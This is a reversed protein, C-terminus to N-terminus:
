LLAILDLIFNGAILASVAGVAMLVLFPIQPTVWVRTVGRAELEQAIRLREKRDDESTEAERESSEVGVSPDKLWVFHDPLEAVPMTYGSFGRPFRFEGRAANRLGIAIPVVVSLLAADMLLSVSFPMVGLVTSVAPSQPLLPTSFLPVLVAAIMLAKADAGGYLVGLEFLARAFLVTILVALVPVPVADPGIGFYFAAVGIVSIVVLYAVGEIVDAFRDLSPGLADDWAFLHELVFGGVLIWLALPLAGGPALLFVGLAIGLLAMVQWLRDTV